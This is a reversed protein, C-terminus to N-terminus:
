CCGTYANPCKAQAKKKKTRTKEDRRAAISLLVVVLGHIPLFFLRTSSRNSEREEKERGEEREECM